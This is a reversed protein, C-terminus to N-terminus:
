FLHNISENISSLFAHVVWNWYKVAWTGGRGGVGGGGWWGAFEQANSKKSFKQDFKGTYINATSITFYGVPKIREITISRLRKVWSGFEWGLTGWKPDFEGNTSKLFDVHLLNKWLNEFAGLFFHISYSCHDMFTTCMSFSLIILDKWKRHQGANQCSLWIGSWPNHMMGRWQACRIQDRFLVEKPHIKWVSLLFYSKIRLYYVSFRCTLCVVVFQSTISRMECFTCAQM